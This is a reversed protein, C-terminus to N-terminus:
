LKNGDEPVEHSWREKRSKSMKTIASARKLVCKKDCCSVRM